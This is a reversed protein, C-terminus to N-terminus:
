SPRSFFAFENDKPQVTAKFTVRTGREVNARSLRSPVSGFVRHGSDLEVLMKETTGYPTDVLKLSVVTGSLEQRGAALPELQANAEEREAARQVKDVGDQHLKVVFARQRDTLSGYKRLNGVIDRIIRVNYNVADSDVTKAWQYAADVEPDAALADALRKSAKDAERAAKAVRDLHKRQWSAKDSDDFRSNACEHGVAIWGGNNHKFVAGYAYHSGCHDCQGLGYEGVHEHGGTYKLTDRTVHNLAQQVATDRGLYVWGIFTYSQPDFNKPSHKDNRM